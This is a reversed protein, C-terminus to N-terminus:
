LKELVVLDQWDGIEGEGYHKLKLSPPLFELLRNKDVFSIGYQTTDIDPSTTEQPMWIFGEKEILSEANKFAKEAIGISSVSEKKRTIDLAHLGHITIVLTGGKALIRSLEDAWAYFASKKLHSFVSVSYIVNFYNSKYPLPPANTSLLPQIFPINEYIYEIPPADVDCGHVEYKELDQYFHRATRGCGVGFDLIRLMEKQQPIHKIIDEFCSRGIQLFLRLDTEGGVTVMDKWTPFSVGCDQLERYFLIAETDIYKRFEFSDINFYTKQLSVTRKWLNEIRCKYHHLNDGAETVRVSIEEDTLGNKLNKKSTM